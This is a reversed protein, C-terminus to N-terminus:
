VGIIMNTTTLSRDIIPLAMTMVKNDTQNTFTDNMYNFVNLSKRDVTRNWVGVRGLVEEISEDGCKNKINDIKRSPYTMIINECQNNSIQNQIVM